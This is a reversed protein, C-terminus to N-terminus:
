ATFYGFLDAIVQTSGASNYLDVAGVLNTCDSAVSLGTIVLNPVTQGPVFNLNSAFPIVCQDDPFVTLFGSRSPQTVTVNLVAAGAGAGPVGGKGGVALVRYSNAGIPGGTSRTDLLRVPDLAVFRGAETAKVGDYYGVVDAIVQTAGFSNYFDVIGTAPVRVAVLNPVTQGAVFNLSSANPRAVDDPYVTLFGSQTPATVTVNMVVATVGSGPVGGKGTVKFRLRAGSGIPAAPIGGQGNRTDFYRAPTVEHFRSGVPGDSAAYYGVVDAIVHTSGQNNFFSVKGANGMKVTVLNPVTQGPVFNLNSITPRATGSPWVTLFGPLTPGTVTVNMVVAAVGSAPVGGRGAVQLAYSGGAGLPGLKGGNGNRTDFIRAPSLATYEGSAAATVVKTAEPGWVTGPGELPLMNTAAVKFTGTPVGPVVLTTPPSSQGAPIGVLKTYGSWSVKYGTIIGGGGGASTPAQWTLTSTGGSTTGNLNRVVTPPGGTHPRVVATAAPGWPPSTLPLRNTADVQFTVNADDTLGNVTYTTPPALEGDPIPLKVTNGGWRVRYGTILFASGNSAPPTWDLKAQTGTVTVTLGQPASPLVPAVTGCAPIARCLDFTGGSTVKSALAPVPTVAGLLRSRLQALTLAPQATLVDAAGGSVFPTAMSTGDFFCYGANNPAGNPCGSVVGPPVTSLIGVGPAALDVANIGYNSFGALSGSEQAAAVCIVNGLGFACPYEPLLDVDVGVNNIGNGAATVFLMGADYARNVADYLSQSFSGLGWSAQLIRVDVGAAKAAVAWDIATVADALSGTAAGGGPNKHLMRLEMLSVQQAIGSIGVGNNGVAGVIGSVHSGHGDDDEPVCDSEYSDYGHTGFGCGNVADGNSWLNAALDPHDLDAGTDLVGVVVSRSGATTNWAAEARVGAAEVARLGWQYPTFYPDNPTAAATIEYNPEVYRVAPDADLVPSEPTLEDAAAHPTADPAGPTGSADAPPTLVLTDGSREAAVAGSRLALANAAAETTGPALGVLVRDDAVRGPAPAPAPAPRPTGARPKDIPAAAAVTTAGLVCV